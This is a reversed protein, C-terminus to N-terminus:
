GRLPVAGAQRTENYYRVIDRLLQFHEFDQTYVINIERMMSLNEIPLVVIKKKKLEDMCASKALVSVGFDRRILDKITAINDIELVVNFDDISLNQSELSAVFLNRTGSDPLRLIMKEKQLEGITVMGRHALRHGPSVALVLCDTDLILYKLSPDNIKGEVIAFDLEYNKLMDHLNSQSDTIIKITVGSRSNVYRALAEAIANSEATHTIGVTLHRLQKSSDEIAQRAKNYVAMIRRAYKILVAGEATPVLTRKEMNFIRIGFEEELQRMQRSVAPQTLHLEEAAKTFSGAQVVALLTRVKSDVM